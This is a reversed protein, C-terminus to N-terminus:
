GPNGTPCHTQGVCATMRPKRHSLPNPWCRCDDQTRDVGCSLSQRSGQRLTPRYDSNSQPALRAKLTRHLNRKRRSYVPPFMYLKGAIVYVRHERSSMCEANEHHGVCPTRTIVYVRHKRLSMCVTSGYYYVTNEYHCVTNRHHCHKRLSM